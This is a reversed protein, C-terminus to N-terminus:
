HRHVVFDFTWAYSSYIRHACPVTSCPSPVRGGQKVAALGASSRACRSTMMQAELRTRQYCQWFLFSLPLKGVQLRTGADFEAGLVADGQSVARLQMSTSVRSRDVCPRLSGSTRREESSEADTQVVRIQALRLLCANQIHFSLYRVLYRILALLITWIDGHFIRWLPYLAVKRATQMARWHAHRLSESPWPVIPQSRRRALLVATRIRVPRRM